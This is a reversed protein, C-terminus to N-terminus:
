PSPPTPQSAALTAELKVLEAEIRDRVLKTGDLWQYPAEAVMREFVATYKARTESVQKAVFEPSIGPRDLTRLNDLRDCAKIILVRWEAKMLREVYGEKPIKSLQRVVDALSSGFIHKLLEYGIEETDELADHLLAARIMHPEDIGVEDMLVIATRRLHEFYRQPTGDPGLEQRHQARHGYKAFIYATQTLYYEHDDRAGNKLRRFFTARNETPQM